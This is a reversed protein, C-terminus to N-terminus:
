TEDRRGRCKRVLAITAGVWAIWFATPEPVPTVGPGPAVPFSGQWAAFDAGDVDDDDDADGGALTAGSETPFHTQWAVFDAGDVDGDADFDGPLAAPPGNLAEAFTTAVTLKDLYVRDTSEQSSLRIHFVSLTSGLAANGLTATEDLSATAVGETTQDIWLAIQDYNDGAMGTSKSFKAVATHVVNGTHQLTATNSSGVGVTASGKRAFYRNLTTDNLIGFSFANDQGTTNNLPTNINNGYVQLFDGEWDGTKFTFGLYVTGTQPAFERQVVNRNEAGTTLYMELSRGLGAINGSTTLTMPTGGTTNGAWATTWGTGGNGGIVTAAETYSEFNDHALVAANANASGIGLVTVAALALRVEMRSIQSRM